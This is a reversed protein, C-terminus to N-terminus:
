ELDNKGFSLPLLEELTSVQINDLNGMIIRFDKDCFEAMVQRCIGCPACFDAISEYRGGVIAISVFEREGESVAKFFATREACNTPTYAANEVNCGTYVKGSKGLLAAGVKFGSYPSYSMKRAEIAREMLARDTM